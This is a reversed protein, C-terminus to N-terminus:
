DAMRKKTILIVIACVVLIGGIAYFITTGMGGTTPLVNGRANPIEVVDSAGQATDNVSYIVTVTANQTTTNSYTPNIEVKVDSDLLNFGSNTKTEELYYTGADLGRVTFSGNEDTILTSAEAKVTTWDYVVGLDNNTVSVDNIQTEAEIMSATVVKAYHKANQEDTYYLVFEVDKLLNTENDKEYKKVALSYTFAHAYDEVTKGTDDSGPTGSGTVNPNNSYELYAVNTLNDNTPAFRNVLASYKVIIVHDKSLANFHAKLNTFTITVTNTENVVGQKQKNVTIGEPLSNNNENSDNLDMITYVLEETSKNAVYISEIQEFSIGAPLTDTFKYYYTDFDALNSPLTGRLKYYAKDGINFDEEDSFGEGVKDSIKKELTVGSGKPQITLNNVVHLIYSTYFGGENDAQSGDRDKILYYGPELGSASYGNNYTITKVPDGLYKQTYTTGTKEAAGVIEAFRVMLRDKATAPLKELAAAVDAATAAEGIQASLSTKDSVGVNQYSIETTDAKLANLLTTSNSVSEGWEINSLTYVNETTGGDAKQTVTLDGVFIQYVDFTHGADALDITVSYTEGAATAPLALSALLIFALLFAFIRNLNKM